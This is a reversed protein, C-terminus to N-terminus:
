TRRGARVDAMTTNSDWHIDREIGLGWRVKTTQLENLSVYGLEKEQLCCLGYLTDEGDFELIYWTGIGTPNFFKCIVKQQDEPLGDTSGFPIKAFKDRIEQTM